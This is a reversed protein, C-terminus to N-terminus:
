QINETGGGGKEDKKRAAKNVALVDATIGAIGVIERLEKPIVKYEDAMELEPYKKIARGIFAILVGSHDGAMRVTKLLDRALRKLILIDKAQEVIVECLVDEESVDENMVEFESM